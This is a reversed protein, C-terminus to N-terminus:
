PRGLTAAAGSQEQGRRSRAAFGPLLLELRAGRRGDPRERATVQGGHALAIERVIALGLGAGGRARARSRDVRHFREFIRERDAAPIGPGDDTVAFRIWGGARAELELAVIGHPSATHEVANRLLNRLAQALRDPDARLYGAPVEGLVFDREATLVVGEWLEAVFDALEIAQPHLLDQRGLQALVLMDDILRSVRAIEQGALREVRRVDELDPEEQAALVELQGRIVTIPTRLEHSADAIFQRQRRFADELRDLMHNFAESLVEMESSGSGSRIRPALDGGDVLRAVQAMRRLPTSIRGGALYAALLSLALIVLGFLLFAQGVDHQAREIPAMPLGAGVVVAGAPTAIDRELLRVEGVDPLLRMSFGPDPRLLAQGQANELRQRAAPEGDDPRNEGFLEPHNSLAGAHTLVFLLPANASYHQARFYSLAAREVGSDARGNDARADPRRDARPAEFGLGPSLTASFASADARLDGDAQSVLQRETGVFVVLFLVAFALLLLAGVGWVLQTRLTM